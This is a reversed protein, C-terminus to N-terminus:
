LNYKIEALKWDLENDIDQSELETKEIYGTNNTVLMKEKLVASTKLFYFQGTDHFSPTLDQSRTILHEPNFMEVLNRDNIKVARQIPFSYKVIPFVCDLKNKKLLNFARELDNTKLLPTCPFICCIFDFKKGIKEYSSCVEIIVDIITAFDSANKDSRMFPVTAGFQKSIKSIEISDTSVMVEDFLNSKLATKIPYSIIPSGLFSKINKNKIRKSGGRASILALTKM